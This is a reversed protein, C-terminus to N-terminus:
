SHIVVIHSQVWGWPWSPVNPGNPCHPCNTFLLLTTPEGITHHFIFTVLYGEKFHSYCIVGFHIQLLQSTQGEGLVSFIQTHFLNGSTASGQLISCGIRM